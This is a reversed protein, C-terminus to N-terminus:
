PLQDLNKRVKKAWESLKGGSKFSVQVSKKGNLKRRAARNLEDPIKQFGSRILLQKEDLSMNTMDILENTNPNM